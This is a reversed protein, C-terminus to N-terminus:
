GASVGGFVKRMLQDGVPRNTDKKATFTLDMTVPEASLEPSFNHGDAGNSFVKYWIFQIYDGAETTTQFLVEIPTVIKVGGRTLITSANPTYDYVIALDQVLTVTGKLAFGWGVEPLKVLDYDTNEVLLGDVSGTISTAAIESLDGNQNDFLIISELEFLTVNQTAGVVPTGPVDIKSYLGGTVDNLFEPDLVRGSSLSIESTENSVEDRVNGVDDFAIEASELNQSYTAGNAFVAKTWPNSTGYGRYYFYGPQSLLTATDASTFKDM